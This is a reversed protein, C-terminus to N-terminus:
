LVTLGWIAKWITDNLYLEPLAVLSILMMISKDRALKILEPMSSSKWLSTEMTCENEKNKSFKAPVDKKRSYTCWVPFMYMM